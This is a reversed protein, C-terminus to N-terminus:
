EAADGDDSEPVYELEGREVLDAFANDEADLPFDVRGRKRASEYAGFIIEATKLGNKAGLESERDEALADVVETAARDIYESGYQRGEANAGHLDEGDVDIAQWSGDGARRIELMNGTDSDIRIEGETGRIVHAADAFDSGEGGSIVGQVGTEYEWLAWAQNEQHMGFRVDEERYDIQAIVWEPEAEGAFMGTLDITHAGTDYLDSWTTEIRRLEGIEGGDVLRKAERFPKGFRRQRNFTLQVDRRWCADAMRRASGWTHAMPKEAHIASVVGSRACDVVVDEHIAPPVAVTVIDPEVADLMAEYEEFVNEDPLDFTRGFAEAHEPVIDACAVVECRDDNEFSEAHRYGMAFGEVTPNEPDPGTGVVAVTYTM